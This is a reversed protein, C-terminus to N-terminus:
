EPFGDAIWGKLVAVQEPTWTQDCPMSGNEVTELIGDARDKVDDYSSLDFMSKMSEVDKDRFLPRIDNTFSSMAEKRTTRPHPRNLRVSPNDPAYHVTTDPLPATPGSISDVGLAAGVSILTNDVLDGGILAHSDISVPPLISPLSASALVADPAPAHQLVVECGTVIETALVFVPVAADPLLDYPLHDAPATAPRPRVGPPQQPRRRRARAASPKFPLSAATRCCGQLMAIRVASLSGSGSLVLATSM